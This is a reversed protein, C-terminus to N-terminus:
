SVKFEFGTYVSIYVYGAYFSSYTQICRDSILAERIAICQLLSTKYVDVVQFCSSILVQVTRGDVVLMAFLNVNDFM